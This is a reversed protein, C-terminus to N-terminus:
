WMTAIVSKFGVFLMTAALHMSQDSQGRDGKATECASLFALYADKLDLEMLDSVSIMGDDNLYFSTQLPQGPDQRAYCTIHLLTASPLAATVEKPTSVIRSPAAYQVGARDAIGSIQAIEAQVGPLAPLRSTAVQDAAVLL